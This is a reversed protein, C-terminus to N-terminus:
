RGMNGIGCDKDSRNYRANLVADQNAGRWAGDLLARRNRAQRELGALLHVSDRRSLIRRAREDTLHTRRFARDACRQKVGSALVEAILSRPVIVREDVAFPVGQLWAEGTLYAAPRRSRIREDVLADVSAIETASLVRGAVGELDDLPLGLRWLVLWAAEDLANTTGHGFCVGAETLRMSSRELLEMLTM